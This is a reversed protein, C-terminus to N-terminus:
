KIGYLRNIKELSGVGGRKMYDKVIDMRENENMTAAPPMSSPLNNSGAFKNIISTMVKMQTPTLSMGMMVEADDSSLNNTGWSKLREYTETPNIKLKEFEKNENAMREEIVTLQHNFYMDLLSNFGDQSINSELAKQKFSNILPDDSKVNFYEAVEPDVNLTYEGNEPANKIQSVQKRLGEARKALDEVTKYTDPLWEPRDGAGPTNKDWYWKPDGSLDDVDLKETTVVSLSGNPDTHRVQSASAAQVRQSETQTYSTSPTAIAPNGLGTDNTQSSQTVEM